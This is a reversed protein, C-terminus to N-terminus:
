EVMFGFHSHFIDAQVSAGGGDINEVVGVDYGQVAGRATPDKGEPNVHSFYNRARMDQSHRRAAAILKPHFALPPVMPFAALQARLSTFFAPKRSRADISYWTNVSDLIVGEQTPNSRARNMLELAQQELPTPDGHSYQVQGALASTVALLGSAVFSACRLFATPTM